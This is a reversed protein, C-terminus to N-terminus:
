SIRMEGSIESLANRLIAAGVLLATECRLIPMDLSAAVYGRNVAVAEEGDTLGGEPGFGAKVPANRNQAVIEDPRRGGRPRFIIGQGNEPLKSMADEIDAAAILEPIVWCGCQKAASEAVGRLRQILNQTVTANSRQARFIVIGRVEIETLKEVAWRLREGKFLGSAIWIEPRVSKAGDIIKTIRVGLGGDPHPGLIGDAECGKGDFIRIADGVELRLVKQIHRKEGPSLRVWEGDPPIRDVLHRRM